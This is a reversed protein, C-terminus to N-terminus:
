QINLLTLLSPAKHKHKFPVNSDCERSSQQRVMYQDLCLIVVSLQRPCFFLRVLLRGELNIM